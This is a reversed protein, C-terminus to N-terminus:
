KIRTVKCGRGSPAQLWYSRLARLSIKVVDGSKLLLDESVSLQRWVQGNEFIFEIRGDSLYRLRSLKAETKTLEKRQTAATEQRVVEMPPLGFADEPAMTSGPVPATPAPTAVPPASPPSAAVAPATAPAAAAAPAPAREPRSLASSERDFCALRAEAEALERCALLPALADPPMEATAACTAFLLLALPRRFAQARM